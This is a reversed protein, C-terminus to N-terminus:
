GKRFFLGEDRGVVDRAQVGPAHGEGEGADILAGLDGAISKSLFFGWDDGFGERGGDLGREGGTADPSRLVFGKPDEVTRCRLPHTFICSLPLLVVALLLSIACRSLLVEKRQPFLINVNWRAM